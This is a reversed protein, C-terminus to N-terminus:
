IQTNCKMKSSAWPFVFEVIELSPLKAEVMTGALCEYRRPDQGDAPPVGTGRDTSNAPVIIPAPLKLHLEVAKQQVAVACLAAFLQPDLSTASLEVVKEKESKFSILRASDLIVGSQDIEFAVAKAKDPTVFGEVPTVEFKMEAPTAAKVRVSITGRLIYTAM